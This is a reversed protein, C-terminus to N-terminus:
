GGLGVLWAVGLACLALLAAAVHLLVLTVITWQGYTKHWGTLAPRRPAITLLRTGESAM